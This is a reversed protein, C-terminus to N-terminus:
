NCAARRQVSGARALDLEAFFYEQGIERVSYGLRHVTNIVVVDTYCGHCEDLVHAMALVPDLPPLPQVAYTM